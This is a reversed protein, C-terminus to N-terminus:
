APIGLSAVDQPALWAEALPTGGAHEIADRLGAAWRHEILAIAATTGPPIEDAANWLDEGSADDLHSLDADSGDIVNVAIGADSAEIVDIEAGEGRRVIIVDLLRITDHERLRELEDAIEGTFRDGEFGVILMQVPGM